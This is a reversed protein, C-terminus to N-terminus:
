GDVNSMIALRSYCIPLCVSAPWAHPAIACMGITGLGDSSTHKQLQPPVNSESLEVCCQAAEVMKHM